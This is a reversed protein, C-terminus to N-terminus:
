PGRRHLAVAPPRRSFVGSSRDPASHRPTRRANDVIPMLRHKPERLDIITENAPASPARPPTPGKPKTETRLHKGRRRAGYVLSIAIGVMVIGAGLGFGRYNQYAIAVYGVLPVSWRVRYASDGRITLTWPDRITNADGQTNVLMQGSTGEGLHVIRHVVQETPKDPSRFVIVDRVALRDVPVRESIALGGVSLGPRMSGSHVPTMMWTGRALAVGAIGALALVAVLAVAEVLTVVRKLLTVRSWPRRHSSPRTNGNEPYSSTM